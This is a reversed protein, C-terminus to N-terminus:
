KRRSGKKGQRAVKQGVGLAEDIIRRAATGAPFRSNLDAMAKEHASIRDALELAEALRAEEAKRFNYETADIRQVAWKYEFPADVKVNAVQDVAVVKVVAFGGFPSDVILYDEATVGWGAPVKYTYRKDTKFVAPDHRDRFLVHVTTYDRDMLLSLTNKNM